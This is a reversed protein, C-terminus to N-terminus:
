TWGMADVIADAAELAREGESSTDLWVQVPDAVPLTGSRDALGLTWPDPAVAVRVLGRGTRGSVPALVERLAQVGDESAWVLVDAPEVARRIAAAGALGGLAWGQTGTEALLRSADDADRAGVDWRHQIVRRREWWPLWAELLARPRELRLDRRRGGLETNIDRLCHMMKLHACCARSLPPISILQGASREQQGRTGTICCCGARSELARSPSHTARRRPCRRATDPGSGITASSTCALDPSGYADTTGRM